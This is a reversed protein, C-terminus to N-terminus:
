GRTRCREALDHPRGFTRAQQGLAYVGAQLTPEDTIYSFCTPLVKQASQIGLLGCALRRCRLSDGHREVIGLSDVHVPCTVSGCTTCKRRHSIEKGGTRESLPQDSTPDVSCSRSKPSTLPWCRTFRATSTAAAPSCLMRVM